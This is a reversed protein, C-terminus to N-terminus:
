SRRKSRHKKKLYYRLYEVVSCVLGCSSSIIIADSSNTILPYAWQPFDHMTRLVIGFILFHVGMIILYGLNESSDSYYSEENIDDQRDEKDRIGSRWRERLKRLELEVLVVNKVVMYVFISTVFSITIDLIPDFGYIIGIVVLSIILIIFIPTAAITLNYSDVPMLYDYDDGM